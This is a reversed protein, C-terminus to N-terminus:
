TREQGGVAFLRGRLAILTSTRKGPIPSISSSGAYRSEVALNGQRRRLLRPHRQGRHSTSRAVPWRQRRKRDPASSATSSKARPYPTSWEKNGTKADYATVEEYEQEEDSGPIAKNKGRTHLFVKGGAIVPSSHGSGVKKRWVVKLDDKWPKIKEPSTGDRNPGLWGPWDAAVVPVTLAVVLYSARLWKM